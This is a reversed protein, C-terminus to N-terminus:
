GVLVADLEVVVARLEAESVALASRVIIFKSRMTGKVTPRTLAM